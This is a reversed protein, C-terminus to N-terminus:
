LSGREDNQKLIFSDAVPVVLQLCVTMNTM